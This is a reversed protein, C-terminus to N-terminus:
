WPSVKAWGQGHKGCLQHWWRAVVLAAQVMGSVVLVTALLRCLLCQSCLGTASSAVPQLLWHASNMFGCECLQTANAETALVHHFIVYPSFSAGLAM